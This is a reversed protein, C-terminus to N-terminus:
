RPEKTALFAAIAADTAETSQTDPSPGLRLRTESREEVLARVLAVLSAHCDQAQIAFKVWADSVTEQRGATEVAALEDLKALLRETQTMANREPM